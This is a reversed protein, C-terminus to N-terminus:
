EEEVMFDDRRWLDKLGPGDVQMGICWKHWCQRCIMELEDLSRRSPYVEWFYEFLYGVMFCVPIVWFLHWADM